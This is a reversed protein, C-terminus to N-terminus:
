KNICLRRYYEINDLQNSDVPQCSWSKHHEHKEQYDWGHDQDVPGGHPHPLKKASVSLFYIKTDDQKEYHRNSSKYILTLVKKGTKGTINETARTKKGLTGDLDITM